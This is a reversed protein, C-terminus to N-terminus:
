EAIHRLNRARVVVAGHCIKACRSKNSMAKDVLQRKIADLDIEIEIDAIDRGDPVTTWGRGDLTSQKKGRPRVHQGSRFVQKQM